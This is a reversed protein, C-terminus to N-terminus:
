PTVCPGEAITCGFRFSAIITRVAQTSSAFSAADVPGYSLIVITRKDLSGVDVVTVLVRENNGLGYESPTGNVLQTLFSVHPGAHQPCTATWGPDLAVEVQQAQLGGLDISVPETAVIGPHSTLMAIWDAAKTGKTPDPLAGCPPDQLAISANSWLLIYPSGSLPDLKYISTLDIVNRWGEPTVYSLGPAFHSSEHDGAALAGACGALDDECAISAAPTPPTSASSSPVPSPGPTRGGPGPSPNLGAIALGAAVVIVAAIAALPRLNTTVHTDRWHVQWAPRQSQHEIRDAVGDIVRDAVADSGDRLWTDLIREIDRQKTM